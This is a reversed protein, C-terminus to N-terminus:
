ILMSIVFLRIRFINKWVTCAAGAWKQCKHGLSGFFCMGERGERGGGHLIETGVKKHGNESVV